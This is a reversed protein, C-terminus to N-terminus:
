NGRDHQKCIYGAFCQADDAANVTKWETEQGSACYQQNAVFRDYIHNSSYIIVAGEDAVMQKLQACSMHPAYARAKAAGGGLQATAVAGTFLISGLVATMFMTKM